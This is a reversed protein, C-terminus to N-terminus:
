ILSIFWNKTQSIFKIPPLYYKDFWEENKLNDKNKMHYIKVWKLIDEKLFKKRKIIYAKIFEDTIKHNKNFLENWFPIFRKAEEKYEKCEERITGGGTGSGTDSGTGSTTGGDTQYKNYNKVKIILGRPKKQVVVQGEQKLWRLCNEITRRSVGCESSIIEYKFHFEWRNFNNWDKHFVKSLIYVWIKLWDSPKM